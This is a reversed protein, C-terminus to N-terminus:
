NKVQPPDGNPPVGGWLLFVLFDCFFLLFYRILTKVWKLTNGCFSVCGGNSLVIPHPHLGFISFSPYHHTRLSWFKQFVDFNVFFFNSFHFNTSFIWAKSVFFFKFFFTLKLFDFTGFWIFIKSFFLFNRFFRLRFFDFKRFFNCNKFFIRYNGLSPFSGGM